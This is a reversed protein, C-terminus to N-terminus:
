RVLTLGATVASAGTIRATARVRLSKKVRLAKMGKSSIKVKVTRSKGAPINFRKSGFTVSTRKRSKKSLRVKGSSRLTLRGKCASAQRCSVRLSATGNKIKVRGTRISAARVTDCGNIELLPKTDVTKGSHSTFRNSFARPSAKCLDSWNNLIGDPGGDINLEFYSQPVDPLTNDFLTVTRIGEFFNRAKLSVEFGGGRLLVFLRPLPDVTEQVIYVPGALEFPLVPTIARANGVLSGAPCQRVVFQAESCLGGPENLEPSNPRLIDPLVTKSLKINAEGPEQTVIATLPPHDGKDTLGAKGAILRLQPDFPLKDCDEANLMKTSSSQGGEHADFTAILPRPECGTPNIFFGPRDVTIDIKRLPLPVGGFMKPVDNTFVDVGTDSSRLVVRSILVVDGLDIPGAKAPVDIVISAADGPQSAEGLYLGGEATLWGAPDDGFGVTNKVTGVRTDEPCNGARAADLQCKPVAALSGVAGAPLSLKINRINKQGAGRSIVIHSESYAGATKPVGYADDVNPAFPPDAPPCNGNIELSPTAENNSWDGANPVSNWGTLTAHGEHTGCTDPNVIPANPGGKLRLKLEGFPLEPQDVFVNSVTGDEEVIVDGALKIRLGAGEILLFIKWPNSATPRGPGSTPGFFVKGGVANPLVPSRVTLSGIQSGAPCEDPDDTLQKGTSDVGFQDYTCGELGVGGGPNLRLGEPLSQVIDKLQAQWIDDNEYWCDPNLPEGRGPDDCVPSRPYSLVVDQASPKGAEQTGGNAPPSPDVDFGLDFPVNECGTTTISTHMTSTIPDTRWSRADLSVDKTGCSTPNVFFPRTHAPDVISYSELIDNNDGKHVGCPVRGCLINFIDFPFGIQSGLNRPINNLSSDLGRDGSTRVNIYVPFPGGPNSPFAGTGLRAPELGLTEVNYIPTQANDSSTADSGNVYLNPWSQGVKTEAACSVGQWQDLPCVAPATPNGLFGPPLRLTFDKIHALTDDVTCGWYGGTLLNASGPVYPQSQTGDTGALVFKTHTLDPTPDEFPSIPWEGNVATNGQAYRIIGVRSVDNIVTVPSETTIVIPATNTAETIAPGDACFRFLMNVDPHAGAQDTTRTLELRHIHINRTFEDARAPATDIGTVGAAILLLGAALRVMDQRIAAFSVRSV